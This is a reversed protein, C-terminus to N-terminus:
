DEWDFAEDVFIRKEVGSSGRGSVQRLPAPTTTPPPPPARVSQARRAIAQGSSDYRRGPYSDVARRVEGVLARERADWGFDADARGWARVAERVRGFVENAQRCYELRRPADAATCKELGWIQLDLGYLQRLLAACRAVEGPINERRLAEGAYLQRPPPDPPANYYKPVASHLNNTTSDHAPASARARRPPPERHLHDEPEYFRETSLACGMILPILLAAFLTTLGWAVGVTDARAPGTTSLGISEVLLLCGTPSCVDASGPCLNADLPSLTRTQNALVVSDEESSHSYSYSFLATPDDGCSYPLTWVTINASDDLTTNPDWYGETAVLNGPFPALGWREATLSLSYVPSYESYDIWHWEEM